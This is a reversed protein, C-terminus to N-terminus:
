YSLYLPRFTLAPKEMGGGINGEVVTNRNNGSEGFGVKGFGVKGLAAGPLAGATYPLTKPM